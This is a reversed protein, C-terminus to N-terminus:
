VKEVELMGYLLAQEIAPVAEDMAQDLTRETVEAFREIGARVSPAEHVFTALGLMGLPLDIPRVLARPAFRAALTSPVDAGPGVQEQVLVTGEPVRLRAGLLREQSAAVARAALMRDIRESSMQTEAIAAIPLTATWGPGETREVVLLAPVIERVGAREIEARRALAEAAFASGLGPHLAAARSAAHVDPSRAPARLVLLDAGPGLAGRLRQELPEAGREPCETM